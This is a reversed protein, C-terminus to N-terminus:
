GGIVRHPQMGVLVDVPGPLGAGEVPEAAVDIVALSPTEDAVDGIRNRIKVAVLDDVAVDLRRVNEQGVLRGKVDLNTVEPLAPALGRFTILRDAGREVRARFLEAIRAVRRVSFPEAPIDVTEPDNGVFEEGSFQGAELAEGARFAATKIGVGSEDFRGYFPIMRRAVTGDGAGLECGEDLRDV